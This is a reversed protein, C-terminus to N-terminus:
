PTDAPLNLSLEVQDPICMDNCIMIQLSLKLTTDTAGNEPTVYLPFIVEDIYANVDFMDMERKKIAEPWIVTIEKLNESSGWDFRPPLGAEGPDEGYTHWGENLDIELRADHESDGEAVVLRSKFHENEVWATEEAHAFSAGGFVAIVAMFLAYKM